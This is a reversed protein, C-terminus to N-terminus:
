IMHTSCLLDPSQKKVLGGSFDIDVQLLIVGENECFTVCWIDHLLGKQYM